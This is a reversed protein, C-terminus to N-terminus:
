INGQYGTVKAKGFLYCALNRKVIFSNDADRVFFWLVKRREKDRRINQNLKDNLPFVRSFLFHENFDFVLCM